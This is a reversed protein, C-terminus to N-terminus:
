RQPVPQRLWEQFRIAGLGAGVSRVLTREDLQAGFYRANPDPERLRAVLRSGILGTGGIVVIKLSIRRPGSM